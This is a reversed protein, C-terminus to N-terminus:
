SPLSQVSSSGQLSWTSQPSGVVVVGGGVSIVMVSGGVSIVSGGISVVDVDESPGGGVMVVSSFVVGSPLPTGTEVEVGGVGVGLAWYGLNPRLSSLKRSM